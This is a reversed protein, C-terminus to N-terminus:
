QHLLKWDFKSTLLLTSDDIQRLTYKTEDLVLVTDEIVSWRGEWRSCGPRYPVPNGDQNFELIDFRGKQTFVFQKFRKEDVTEKFKWYGVNNRCLTQYYDIQSSLSCLLWLSLLIFLGVTCIVICFKHRNNKM